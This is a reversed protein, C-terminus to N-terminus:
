KLFDDADKSRIIEKPLCPPDTTKAIHFIIALPNKLNSWPAEGTFM